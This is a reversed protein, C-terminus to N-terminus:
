HLPLAKMHRSHSEWAGYGIGTVADIGVLGLFYLPRTYVNYCFMYLAVILQIVCHLVGLCHLVGFYFWRHKFIQTYQNNYSNIQKLIDVDIDSNNYGIRGSEINDVSKVNSSNSISSTIKGDQLIPNFTNDNAAKSSMDPGTLLLTSSPSNAMTPVVWPFKKYLDCYYLNRKKKSMWEKNIVTYNFLNISREPFVYIVYVSFVANLSQYMIEKLQDRQSQTYDSNLAGLFELAAVAGINRRKYNCNNLKDSIIVILYEGTIVVTLGMVIAICIMVPHETDLYLLWADYGQQMLNKMLGFCTISPKIDNDTGNSMPEEAASAKDQNSAGNM